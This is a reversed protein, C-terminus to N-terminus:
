DDYNEVDKIKLVTDEAFSVYHIVYSTSGEDESSGDDYVSGNITVHDYNYGSDNLTKQTVNAVNLVEENSMKGSDIIIHVYMPKEPKFNKDWNTDSDYKGKLVELQVEVEELTTVKDKLLDKLEKNAQDQLKNILGIDQNAHYIGDLTVTTGLPNTMMFQYQIQNDEDIRIVDIIYGEMKFDYYPKAINFQDSPYNKELHKELSKAATYKSVPNGNFANYFFLIPVVIIIIGIMYLWKKKTM